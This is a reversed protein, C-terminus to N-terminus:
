NASGGRSVPDKLVDRHDAVRTTIQRVFSSCPSQALLWGTFTNRLMTTAMFTLSQRNANFSLQPETRRDPHSAVSGEPALSLM